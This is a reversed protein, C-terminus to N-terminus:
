EEKSPQPTPGGYKSPVGLAGRGVKGAVLKALSGLGYVVGVFLWVVSISLWVWRWAPAISYALEFGTLIQMVGVCWYLFKMM